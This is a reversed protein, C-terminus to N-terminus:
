VWKHGTSEETSAVKILGNNNLINTKKKKGIVIGDKNVPCTQPILQRKKKVKIKNKVSIEALLCHLGQESAGKQSM